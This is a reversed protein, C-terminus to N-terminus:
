FCHCCSLFLGHNAAHGTLGGVYCKGGKRLGICTNVLDLRLNLQLTRLDALLTLCVQGAQSSLPIGGKLGELTEGGLVLCFEKGLFLTQLHSM